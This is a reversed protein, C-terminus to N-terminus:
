LMYKLFSNEEGDKIEKSKINNKEKLDDLYKPVLNRDVQQLKVIDEKIKDVDINKNNQKKIVKDM